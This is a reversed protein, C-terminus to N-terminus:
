FPTAETYMNMKNDNIAKKDVKNGDGEWDRGKVGRRQTKVRETERQRNRETDDDRKFVQRQGIAAM